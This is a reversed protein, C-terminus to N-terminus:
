RIAATTRGDAIEKTRLAELLKRPFTKLSAIIFRQYRTTCALRLIKNETQTRFNDAM